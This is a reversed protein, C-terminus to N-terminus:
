ETMSVFLAHVGSKNLCFDTFLTLRERRILIEEWLVSVAPDLLRVGVNLINGNQMKFILKDTSLTFNFLDM